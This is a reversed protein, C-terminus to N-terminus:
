DEEGARRAGIAFMGGVTMFAAAISVLLSSEVGTIALPPSPPVPVSPPEQPTFPGPYEPQLPTTNPPAARSTIETDENSLLLFPPQQEEKPEHFKTSPM